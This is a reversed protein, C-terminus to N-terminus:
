QKRVGMKIMKRQAEDWVARESKSEGERERERDGEGEGQRGRVRGRQMQQKSVRESKRCVKSGTPGLILQTVASLKMDKVVIDNIQLVEDGPQNLANMATLRM